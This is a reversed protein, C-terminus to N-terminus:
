NGSASAQRDAPIRYEHPIRRFEEAIAGNPQSVIVPRKETLSEDQPVSGLASSGVVGRVDSTDEVKTNLLDKILAAFVGM